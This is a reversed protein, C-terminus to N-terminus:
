SRNETWEHKCKPCTVNAGFTPKVARDAKVEPPALSKEIKKIEADTFGSDIAADGLEALTKLLRADDWEALEASRNAAVRYGSASKVDEDVLVAAAYEWGLEQMVVYRGHGAEILGTRRNVVLPERQGYKTLSARIADLNQRSHTRENAPDPAIESLRVSMGLLSPDIKHVAGDPPPAPLIQAKAKPTKRTTATKEVSPKPSIKSESPKPPM